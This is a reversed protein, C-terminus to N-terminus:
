RDTNMELLEDFIKIQSKGNIKAEYMAWDAKYYIDEYM